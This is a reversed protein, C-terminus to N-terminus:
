PRPRQWRDRAAEAARDRYLQHCPLCLWWTVVEGVDTVLKLVVGRADPVERGCNFCASVPDCSV